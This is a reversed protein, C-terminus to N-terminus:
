RTNESLPNGSNDVHLRGKVSSLKGAVKRGKEAMLERLVPSLLYLKNEVFAEQVMGCLMEIDHEFDRVWVADGQQVDCINKQTM